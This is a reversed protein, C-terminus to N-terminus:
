WQVEPLEPVKVWRRKKWSEHGKEALQVGRAAELLDWRFPEGTVVARLFLEWQAKFANDFQRQDPM